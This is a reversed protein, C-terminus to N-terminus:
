RPVPLLDEPSLEKVPTGLIDTVTFVDKGDHKGGQCHKTYIPYAPNSTAVEEFKVSGGGDICDGYSVADPPDKPTAAATATAGTGTIAILLAASAATRYMRM